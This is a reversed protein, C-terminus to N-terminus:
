HNPQSLAEATHLLVARIRLCLLKANKWLVNCVLRLHKEKGVIACVRMEVTLSGGTTFSGVLLTGTLLQYMRQVAPNSNKTKSLCMYAYVFLHHCLWVILWACMAVLNVTQVLMWRFFGSSQKGQHKYLLSWVTCQITLIYMNHYLTRNWKPNLKFYNDCKVCVKKM